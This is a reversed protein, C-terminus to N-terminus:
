KEARCVQFVPEFHLEESAVAPMVKFSESSIGEFSGTEYGQYRVQSGVAPEALGTFDFFRLTLMVPMALKQGDVRGVKLWRRDAGARSLPDGSVIEGEVKVLKGLPRGLRGQIRGPELSASSIMSHETNDAARGAECGVLLLIILGLKFHM